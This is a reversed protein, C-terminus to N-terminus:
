DFFKIKEEDSLESALIDGPQCRLIACIKGLTETTIAGGHRISALTTSGFMKEAMLRPQSYGRAKLAALVDIKYKIM